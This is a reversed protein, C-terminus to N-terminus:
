WSHHDPASRAMAEARAGSVMLLAARLYRLRRVVLQRNSQSAGTSSVSKPYGRAARLASYVDQELIMLETGAQAHSIEM